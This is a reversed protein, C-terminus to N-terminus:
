QIVRRRSNTRRISPGPAWPAGAGSASRGGPLSVGHAGPRCCGRAREAHSEPGRDPAQENEGEEGDRHHTEGAPEPRHRVQAIPEGPAQPDTEVDEATDPERGAAERQHRGDVEEVDAAELRDHARGHEGREEAIQEDDESQEVVEALRPPDPVREDVPVVSRDEELDGPAHHEVRGHERELEGGHDELSQAHLSRAPHQVRDARREHDGADHERREVLGREAREVQDHGLLEMREPIRGQQRDLEEERRHAGPHAHHDEFRRQAAPREPAMELHVQELRQAPRHHDHEDEVPDQPEVHQDAGARQSEHEKGLVLAAHEQDLETETHDQRHQQQHVSAHATVRGAEHDGCQHGHESEDQMAQVHADGPELPRGTVTEAPSTAIPKAANASATRWRGMKGLAGSSSASAPATPYGMRVRIPVSAITLRAATEASVIPTM